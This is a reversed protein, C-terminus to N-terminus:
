ENLIEKIEEDSYAKPDKVTLVRRAKIGFSQFKLVDRVMKAKKDYDLWIIVEEYSSLSQIFENPMSTTLLAICPYQRGVKIASIIDEVLVVRLPRGAERNAEIGEQGVRFFIDLRDQKANIYKPKETTAKGLNRGQWYILKSNSGNEYVPMILRDYFYSYGFNYAHAEEATIGYKNLWLWAQEPLENSFDAPLQLDNKTAYSVDMASRSRKNSIIDEPTSEGEVRFGKMGCRFCHYLYGSMGQYEEKQGSYKCYQVSLSKSKGPTDSCPCAMKYRGLKSPFEFDEPLFM